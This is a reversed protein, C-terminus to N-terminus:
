VAPESQSQIFLCVFPELTRQFQVSVREETTRPLTAKQDVGLETRTNLDAQVFLVSETNLEFQDLNPLHSLVTFLSEFLM